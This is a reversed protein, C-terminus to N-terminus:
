PLACGYTSLPLPLPGDLFPELVSRFSPSKLRSSSNPRDLFVKSCRPFVESIRLCNTQLWRSVTDSFSVPGTERQIPLSERRTAHALKAEMLADKGCILCNELTWGPTIFQRCRSEFDMANKERIRFRRFGRYVCPTEPFKKCRVRTPV